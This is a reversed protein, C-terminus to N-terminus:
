SMGEKRVLSGDGAIIFEQGEKDVVIEGAKHALASRVYRDLSEQTGREKLRRLAEAAIQRQEADRRRDNARRRRSRAM